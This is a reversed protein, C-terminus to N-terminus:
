QDFAAKEAEDNMGAELIRHQYEEINLGREDREEGLEHRIAKLQERLFFEKQSEEIKRRIQSQIRKGVEILDMERVLHTYVAELREKVDLIELLRQKEPVPLPFHAAVMDALKGPADIAMIGSVLDKPLAPNLEVLEALSRQVNRWLAQLTESDEVEEELYTVQAILHDSRLFKVVELRRLSHVLLTIGGDPNRAIRVVQADTGITALDDEAFEENDDGLDVLFGLYDNHAQARHVIELLPGEPVSVPHVMGPFVVIDHTPFVFLNHPLDDDIAIIDKIEPDRADNM